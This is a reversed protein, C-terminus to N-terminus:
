EMVNITINKTIPKTNYDDGKLYMKITVTYKGKKITSDKAQIIVYFPFGDTYNLEFNNKPDILEVSKVTYLYSKPIMSSLWFLSFNSTKKLNLSVSKIGSPIKVETVVKVTARIVVNNTLELVVPIYYTGPNITVNSAPYITNKKKSYNYGVNFLDTYKVGDMGPVEEALIGFSEVPVDTNKLSYQILVESFVRSVLNLKGSSKVTPIIEKDTISITVDKYVSAYNELVYLRYKYTGSTAIAVPDAASGTFSAFFSIERLFSDYAIILGGTEIAGNEKVSVAVPEYKKTSPNLKEIRWDKTEKIRVNTQDVSMPLSVSPGVLGIESNAVAKPDINVKASTKKMVIKPNQTVVKAKITISVPELWNERKVKVPISIVENNKYSDSILTIQYGNMGSVINTKGNYEDVTITYNDLLVNTKSNFLLISANKENESLQIVPMAGQKVSEKTYPTKVTIERIIPEKYGKLKIRIKGKISSKKYDKYHVGTDSQEKFELSLNEKNVTFHQAFILNDKTVNESVVSIEEINEEFYSYSMGTFVLANSYTDSDFVNVSAKGFGVKLESDIVYVTIEKEYKKPKDYDLFYSDTIESFELAYANVSMKIKYCGTSVLDPNPLMIVNWIEDDTTVKFLDKPYSTSGKKVSIIEADCPIVEGHTFEFRFDPNFDSKKNITLIIPNKSINDEVVRVPISVVRKPNDILTATIRVYGTNKLTMNLTSGSPNVDIISSDSSAFLFAKADEKIDVSSGANNIAFLPVSVVQNKEFKISMGKSPSFAKGFGIEMIEEVFHVNIITSAEATGYKAKIMISVDTCGNDAKFKFNSRDLTGLMKENDDKIQLIGDSEEILYEENKNIKIARIDLMKNFDESNQSFKLEVTEGSGVDYSAKTFRFAQTDTELILENSCQANKDVDYAVICFKKDYDEKNVLYTFIMEDSTTITEAVVWALNDEDWYSVDYFSAGEVAKWGLKVGEEDELANATFEFSVDTIGSVLDSIAIVEDQANLGVVIYQLPLSDKMVSPIENVVSYNTKKSTIENGLEVFLFDENGRYLVQYSEVGEVPKFSIQDIAKETFNKSPSSSISIDIKEDENESECASTYAKTFFDGSECHWNSYVGVKSYSRQASNELFTYISTGGEVSCAFFEGAPLTFVVAYTDGEKVYFQKEDPIQFTKFGAYIATGSNQYVLEGYLRDQSVYANKYISITYDTDTDWFYTSVAEVKESNQATFFSAYQTDEYYGVATYPVSGADHYNYDYNDPLEVDFAIATGKKTCNVDYYSLYFYGSDGCDTGWSNKMIWAGNEEPSKGSGSIFNSKDYNDDWGVLTVEHNFAGIDDENDDYYAAGNLNSDLHCYHAAVAGYDVILQKVAEMSSLPSMYVGQVHYSDKDYALAPDLTVPGKKYEYPALTEDIPGEWNMLFAGAYMSYGGNDMYNKKDNSVKMGEGPTLGLPDTQSNYSFYAIAQESLDLENTAYGKKIANAEIAAITAFAWCTGYPNQNKVETIYDYDRSDYKEQTELANVIEQNIYYAPLKKDSIIIDSLEYGQIGRNPVFVFDKNNDFSEKESDSEESSITESADEESEAEESDAEESGADESGTEESNMEESDGEEFGSEKTDDQESDRIDQSEDKLGTEESNNEELSVDSGIEQAQVNSLPLACVTLILAMLFALIRATVVRKKM